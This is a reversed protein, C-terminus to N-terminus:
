PIKKHEYLLLLCRNLFVTQDKCESNIENKITLRVAARFAIGGINQHQDAVDSASTPPIATSTSGECWYEMVHQQTCCIDASPCDSVTADSVSTCIFCFPTMSNRMCFFLCGSVNMLTQQVNTFVLCHIHACHPLTTGGHPCHHLLCAVNQKAICIKMLMAHLSKSM